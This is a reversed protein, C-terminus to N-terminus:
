GRDFRGNLRSKREQHRRVAHLGLAFVEDNRGLYKMYAATKHDGLRRAGTEAAKVGKVEKTALLAKMLKGSVAGAAGDSAFGDGGTGLGQHDLYHASEHALTAAAYKTAPNLEIRKAFSRDAIYAGKDKMGAPGEVVKLPPLGVDGHAALMADRATEVAKEIADSAGAAPEILGGPVPTFPLRHFHTSPSIPPPPKPKPTAVKRTKPEPGLPGPEIPAYKPGHEALIAEYEPTLM